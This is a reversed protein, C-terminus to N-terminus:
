SPLHGTKVYVTVPDIASFIREEEAPWCLWDGTSYRGAQDELSGSLLFLEAGGPKSPITLHSDIDLRTMLIREPYGDESYLTRSSAGTGMNKWQEDLMNIIVQKRSM